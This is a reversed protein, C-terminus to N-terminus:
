KGMIKLTWKPTNEWLVIAGVDDGVFVGLALGVYIGVFVGAALGVDLGVTSQM